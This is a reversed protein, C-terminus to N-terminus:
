FNIYMLYVLGGCHIPDYPVQLAGRSAMIKETIRYDTVFNFNYRIFRGYLIYIRGDKGLPCLGPHNFVMGLPM